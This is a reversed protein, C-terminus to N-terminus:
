LITCAKSKKNKGQTSPSSASDANKDEADKIDEQSGTKITVKKKSKSEKVEEKVEEISSVDDDEDKDSENDSEEDSGQDSKDEKADEDNESNDETEAKDGNEEKVTEEPKSSDSDKKRGFFRVQKRKPTGSVNFINYNTLKLSDNRQFYTVMKRM